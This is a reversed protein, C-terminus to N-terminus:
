ERQLQQFLSILSTVMTVACSTKNIERTKGVTHKIIDGFQNYYKVYHKFVDAGSIVPIMNYVILKCYSALFNRKKHLDEIKAHEDHTSDEDAEFVYTQVFHNLLDRLESDATYALSAM